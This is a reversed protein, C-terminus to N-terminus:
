GGLVVAERVELATEFESERGEARGVRRLAEAHVRRVADAERDSLGLTEGVDAWHGLPVLFAEVPAEIGTVSADARAVREYSRRYDAAALQTAARDVLAPLDALSVSAKAGVLLLVQGGFPHSVGRDAAPM